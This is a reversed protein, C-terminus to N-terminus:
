NSAKAVQVPAPRAGQAIMQTKGKPSWWDFDVVIGAESLYMTHMAMGNDEPGLILKSADLTQGSRSAMAFIVVVPGAKTEPRVTLLVPQSVGQISDLTQMVGTPGISFTYSGAPLFKNGFRTNETLTFKGGVLEQGLASGAAGCFVMLGLLAAKALSSRYISKSLLTTM